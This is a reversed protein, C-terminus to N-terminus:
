CCFYIRHILVVRHEKKVIAMGHPLISATIHPNSKTYRHEFNAVKKSNWDCPIHHLRLAASCSSPFDLGNKDSLIYKLNEM